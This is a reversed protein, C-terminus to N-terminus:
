TKSHSPENASDKVEEFIYKDRIHQNFYRTKSSSHMLGIYVRVPVNYYDYTGPPQKFEVRLIGNFLSYGVSRLIKSRVLERKM